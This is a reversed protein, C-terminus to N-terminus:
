KKLCSEKVKITKCTEFSEMIKTKLAENKLNLLDHTQVCTDRLLVAATLIIKDIAEDSSSLQCIISNNKEPYAYFLLDSGHTVSSCIKFLTLYCDEFSTNDFKLEKCLDRFNLMPPGNNLFAKWNDEPLDKKIEELYKKFDDKLLKVNQTKTQFDEYNRDNTAFDWAIWLKAFKQRDDSKSLALLYTGTYFMTRLLIFSEHSLGSKCLKTIGYYLRMQKTFVGCVCTNFNTNNGIGIIAKDGLLPFVTDWFKESFDFFDKYKELLIPCNINEAPLRM